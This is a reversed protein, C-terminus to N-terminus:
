SRVRQVVKRVEQLDSLRPLFSRPGVGRRHYAILCVALGAAPAVLSGVAAGLAGYAPILVIDVTGMILLNVFYSQVLLQPDGRAALARSLLWQAGWLVNGVLLVIAPALAGEYAGGLLLSILTSLILSLGVALGLGLIATARAMKVTLGLADRDSMQAMQPFSAYSLAIAVFSTVTGLTLAVSYLGAQAQSSLAYVLLLDFRASSYALVTALQTRLGFQLAPRLYSLEWRPVLAINARALMVAATTFGVAAAVLSALVGGFVDLELVGCFLVVGAATTSAMAITVVSVAIIRQSAYVTFILFQALTSIVVTICAVGVAPWVLRDQVPLQAISYALVVGAGAVSALMVVGISSSLAQQVSAKAQGVRVVAADGLGLTACLSAFVTVFSLAALTGKGSPGLVRATVISALTGLVLGSGDSIFRM